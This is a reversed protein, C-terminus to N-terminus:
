RFTLVINSDKYTLDSAEIKREMNIPYEKNLPVRNFSGRNQSLFSFKKSLESGTLSFAKHRTVMKELNNLLNPDSFDFKNSIASGRQSGRNLFKSLYNFQGFEDMNVSNRLQAQILDYKSPSISSNKKGHPDITFRRVTHGTPNLIISTVFQQQLPINDFKPDM